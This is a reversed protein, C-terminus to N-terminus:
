ATKLQEIQMSHRRLLARRTAEKPHGPPACPLFTKLGVIKEGFENGAAKSGSPVPGSHRQSNLQLPPLCRPLHQGSIHDLLLLPGSGRREFGALARRAVLGEVSERSYSSSSSCSGLLTSSRSSVMRRGEAPPGAREQVEELSMTKLTLQPDSAYHDGGLKRRRIVNDLSSLAAGRTKACAFSASPSPSRGAGSAHLNPHSASHASCIGPLSIKHRGRKHDDEEEEEEEGGEFLSGRREKLRKDSRSIGDTLGNGPVRPGGFYICSTLADDHDKASNGPYGHFLEGKLCGGSLLNETASPDAAAPPVQSGLSGPVKLWPESNLRLLPQQQQLQLRGSWLGPGPDRLQTPSHTDSAAGGSCASCQNEKFSFVQPGPGSSSGSGAGWQPSTVIQIESPSAPAQFTAADLVIRPAPGHCCQGAQGRGTLVGGGGSGVSGDTTIFIVEKGQSKYADLLLRLVRRDGASVAHVLASAGSRDELGLHAGAALLLAVPEPGAHERCAHMLASRGEKDQINPDAGRELLYKLLRARGASQGDAHQTRCAVMLPTQGHRDSENIYAGGELLLRTLRLRRLYVARLLPNASDGAVGTVCEEGGDM